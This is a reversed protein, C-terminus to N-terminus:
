GGFFAKWLFGHGSDREANQWGAYFEDLDEQNTQDAIDDITSDSADGGNQRQWEESASYGDSYSGGTVFRWFGM